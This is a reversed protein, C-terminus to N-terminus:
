LGYLYAYMLAYDLKQTLALNKTIWVASTQKQTGMDPNM